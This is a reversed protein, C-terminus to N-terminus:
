FVGGRPTALAKPSVKRQSEFRLGAVLRHRRLAVETLRAVAKTTGSSIPM